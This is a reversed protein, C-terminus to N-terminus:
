GKNFTIMHSPSDFQEAVGTLTDPADDHKNKGEKMHSMVADHFRPWMTAWDKPFKIIKQVRASNSFIRSDKNKSQHFTSIVIKNNNYEFKVIKEVARAFGRGGSNSEITALNVNNEHLMKATEPETIEMADQTYYVDTVWASQDIERFCISCLFDDGTDATDTYNRMRGPLDSKLGFADETRLAEYEEPTYTEFSNYLCGEMDLPQQFYNAKFIPQDTLKQKLKFDDWNFIEECLLDGGVILGKKDYEENEVVKKKYTYTYEPVTKQIMGALDEHRWRTHNVIILGSKELRSLFTNKFFDWHNELTNINYADESNRIPDDIINLNGGIGTSTGGMGAGLYSHYDDDLAWETVAASGKKVHLGNFIESFVIKVGDDCKRAVIDRCYKSFKNALRDNYSFTMIRAKTNMVTNSQYFRTYGFLWACFSTLTYSKGHRPPENILLIRAVDGNCTLLKGEVFDQLINALEKLHPRSERFYEPDMIKLFHWFKRRALEINMKRLTFQKETM